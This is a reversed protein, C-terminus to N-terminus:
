ASAFLVGATVSQGRDLSAVISISLTSVLAPVAIQEAGDLIAKLLEKGTAM